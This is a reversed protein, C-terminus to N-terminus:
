LHTVRNIYDSISAVISGRQSVYECFPFTYCSKLLETLDDDERCVLVMKKKEFAEAIELQHDDVHEGYKKLRPFVIVPKGRSKGAIISGVGSHTILISCAAIKGDFEVKELFKVAPFFRPRYDSHGIQGFVEEEIRGNEILRDVEVLLRNCQFKQTGLTIFIM